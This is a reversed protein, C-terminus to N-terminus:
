ADFRDEWGSNIWRIALEQKAAILVLALIFMVIPITRPSKM